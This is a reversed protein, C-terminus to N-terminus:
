ALRRGDAPEREPCPSTRTAAYLGPITTGTIFDSAASALFVTIGAHDDPEGRRGAPTRALVREHLGNVDKRAQIALGTNNWGTMM